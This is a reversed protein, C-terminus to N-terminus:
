TFNRELFRLANKSFLKEIIEEAPINNAPLILAQAPDATYEKAHKLLYDYLLNYEKATWFGNMPDVIGDYDSGITHHEWANEGVTDLVKAIHLIQNWVFGSFLKLKEEESINGKVKKLEKKSAIRREDLQIGILGKSKAVLIIEDDFINVDVGSFLGNDEDQKEDTYVTPYGNVNAHSVMIPTQKYPDTVLLDYYERRSKKSMHKIDILISNDLLKKIVEMGLSTIGTNVGEDQDLLKQIADGLSYAHGVLHNYFHHAPAIFLPKYEWNLMIDINGLIEERQPPQSNNETFVHGGEITPIISIINESLNQQIESFNKVLRYRWVEKGIKVPRNHLQEYFKRERQLEIFYNKNRQIFNVKRRGIGTVWDTLLDVFMGEGIRSVFFGKELPAFSAAILKVNAESLTTCDTQTFRTVTITKNLFQSIKTPRKKHWISRKKWRRRTNKNRPYSRGYPKLSTHCHLDVFLPKTM